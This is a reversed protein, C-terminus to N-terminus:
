KSLQSDRVAQATAQQASFRKEEQQCHDHCRRNSICFVDREAAKLVPLLRSTCSLERKQGGSEMKTLNEKILKQM